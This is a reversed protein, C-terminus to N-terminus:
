EGHPSHPNFLYIDEDSAGFFLTVGWAPLTSQFSENAMALLMSTYDSGMRPTHISFERVSASINASLTVGWAPLTSQFTKNRGVKLEVYLTVGWAPLTSQFCMRKKGM